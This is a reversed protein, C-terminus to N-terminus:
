PKEGLSTSPGRNMNGERETMISLGNLKREGSLATGAQPACGTSNIALLHRAATPQTRNGRGGGSSAFGGRGMAAASTLCFRPHGSAFSGPHRLGARKTQKTARAADVASDCAVGGRRAGLAATSSQSVSPQLTSPNGMRLEDCGFQLAIKPVREGRAAALLIQCRRLIFADSSRLGPQLKRQEDKTLPRIFIPPRM